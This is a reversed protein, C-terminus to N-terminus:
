FGVGGTLVVGPGDVRPHKGFSLIPETLEIEIFTKFHPTHRFEYGVVGNLTVIGPRNRTRSSFFSGIGPGFGFYLQNKNEPQPYYLCIGKLYGYRFSKYPVLNASLDFGYYDRQFRAGVGFTPLISGYRLPVPASLKVYYLSSNNEQDAHLISSIGSIFLFLFLYKKLSHM